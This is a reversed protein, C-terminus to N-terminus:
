RCQRDEIQEIRVTLGGVKGCPPRTGAENNSEGDGYRCEARTPPLAAQRRQPDSVAPMDTRDSGCHESSKREREREDPSVPRGIPTDGPIPERPVRHEAGSRSREVLLPQAVAPCAERDLIRM